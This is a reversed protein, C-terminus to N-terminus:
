PADQALSAAYAADEDRYIDQVNFRRVDPPYAGGPHSAGWDESLVALYEFHEWLGDGVTRRMMATCPELCKWTGLIIEWWLQLILTQDVLGLKVMAGMSEYYNGVTNIVVISERTEATRASRHAVQYRFAPGRMITQLDALVFQQAHAFQPSDRVASLDSYAAISNGRRAHRLQVLAAIATAAIVLFTAVSAVTNWAELSM